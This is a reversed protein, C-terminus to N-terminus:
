STSTSPSRRPLCGSAPAQRDFVQGDGGIAAALDNRSLPERGDRVLLLDHGVRRGDVVFYWRHVKPQARHARLGIGATVRDVDGAADFREFEIWVYGVRQEADLCGVVNWHMEKASQAFPDLRQASSNGDLVFPLLLELAKTKGSTNHGRLLLRGGSFNFVQDVYEYLNAIGARTPRFRHPDSM